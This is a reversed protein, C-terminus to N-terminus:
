LTQFVEKVHEVGIATLTNNLGMLTGAVYASNLSVIRYNELAQPSNLDPPPLFQESTVLHAGLWMM